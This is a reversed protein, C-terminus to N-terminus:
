IIGLGKRLSDVLDWDDTDGHVDFINVGLLGAEKTWAAKLGLSQPDDFTIIQEAFESRLFPTSSCLDWHRTFGGTGEFVAATFVNPLPPPSAPSGPYLDVVPTVMLRGAPSLSLTLQKGDDEYEEVGACDTDIDIDTEPDAPNGFSEGETGSPPSSQLVRNIRTLVGQKILDRLQVQGNDTGAADNLVWVNVLVSTDLTHKASHTNASPISSNGHRDKAFESMDQLPRGNSGAFPVTQTAATIKASPPLVRRLHQLFLLFNETDSSSVGNGANGQQGPYEWDIDIGDLSFRDYADLINSAFKKRNGETAVAASFHQSGTWGGVSLKVYRGADHAAAVLRQLLAPANVPDDWTLAFSQDPLAFAFDIWDFREFDIKEPPLSYSAWDPYYAMVLSRENPFPATSLATAPPGAVHLLPAAYSLLGFFVLVPVSIIFLKM